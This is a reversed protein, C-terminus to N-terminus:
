FFYRNAAPCIKKNFSPADPWTAFLELLFAFRM